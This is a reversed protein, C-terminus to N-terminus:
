RGRRDVGDDGAAAPWQAVASRNDTPDVGMESKYLQVAEDLVKKGTLGKDGIDPNNILNQNNSVVTRADRLMEALSRAIAPDDGAADPAAFAAIAAGCLLLITLLAARVARRVSAAANGLASGNPLASGNRRM